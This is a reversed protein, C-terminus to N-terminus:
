TTAMLPVSMAESASTRRAAQGKWGWVVVHERQQPWLPVCTFACFGEPSFFEQWCLDVVQDLMQVWPKPIVVM